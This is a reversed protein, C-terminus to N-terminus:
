KEETMSRLLRDVDDETLQDLNKLISAPNEATITETSTSEDTVIKDEGLKTRELIGNVQEALVIISPGELLQAMPIVVSLDTEIRNKLEVAMLSDLGLNTISLNADLDGPTFGLIAAAQDILYARVFEHRKEQEVSRIQRIVNQSTTATAQLREDKGMFDSLLSLRGLVSSPKIRSWDIPLVVVQAKGSRLLRDFIKMGQSPKIDGLGPEQRRKSLNAAMGVESWAGWNISLAPLGYSQRYHALGDLFANATAYNAQGPSGLVAAGSSFLVFFDIPLDKTLQHLNWSGVVKPAFVKKFRAWNQQALSADDLAGAAHIIGRLPPTIGNIVRELDERKSVDGRTISVKTGAQEIEDVFDQVKQSIEGRGMLVLYTAGRTVLHRALELGLGGMGGTILYSCNRQILERNVKRADMAIRNLRATYRQNARYAIQNEDDKTQLEHLILEDLDVGEAPDLDLCASRIRRNEVIITRGLGWLTTQGLSFKEQKGGFDQAGRTVLLLRSGDMEVQGQDLQRDLAQALHLTSGLIVAQEDLGTYKEEDTFDFSWLHIAGRYPLKKDFHNFLVDFDDPNLPNIQWFDEGLRKLQEGPHVFCCNGGLSSIKKALVSGVGGQDAFILWTGEWTQQNQHHTTQRWEIQYLWHDLPQEIVAELADQTVSRLKIGVVEAVMKGDDQYIKLNGVPMGSGPDNEFIAHCWIESKGPIYVTYSECGIPLFLSLETSQNEASFYKAGLVQFCADLLAPHLQYATAEGMVTKPLEIKGLAENERTWLKRLGRFTNGYVLGISSLMDYYDSTSIEQSFQGLLISIDCPVQSNKENRDGLLKGTAHRNWGIGDWSFVQFNTQNNDISSLTVQVTREEQDPVMMAALFEMNEVWHMGPGFVQAATALGMELFATAPFIVQGFIQHDQLFSPEHAILGVEFVTEKILPSHVLHHILPHLGKERFTTIPAAEMWFRQRQFPYTPLSIKQHNSYAEFSQWDVDSGHTYLECLSNMLVDWDSKSKRLSPLWLLNSADPLCRQAMSLLTPNPGIEVFATCGLDFLATISESFRVPQRIHQMWYSPRIIEDGVLSATVNAVLRIKPATMVISSALQEFDALVPAMLPSHFAHSVTLERSKVGEAALKVLIEQVAAGDGSIVINDPGNIAAISVLNTSNALAAQVQHLDAFVAAMKGGAPLGGMLKGREAIFKLGDELNYTGAVCAAVYEGVSHGMVVTPEIGWHMWLQALAYEIAFLAPQTFITNDIRTQHYSNALISGTSLHSKQDSNIKEPAIEPYLIQLLSDGMIPRLIEDCHDIAARFVAQTEYLQQGMGLYQSGQGTFLFAIKPKQGSVAQGTIIGPSMQGDVFATLAKSMGQTNKDIIAMRHTFHTRGTNATYVIDKPTRELNKLAQAYSAALQNLALESRASLTLIHLPRQIQDDVRTVKPAESIIIHANTGSFGFASVGAYRDKEGTRWPTLGTVIKLPMQDWDIYPSPTQLHLQSPIAQYQLALIVKLLHLLARQWNWIVSIQKLRVM